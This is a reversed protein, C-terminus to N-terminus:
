GVRAEPELMLIHPQFGAPLTDAFTHAADSNPFPGYATMPCHNLDCWGEAPGGFIVVVYSTLYPSTM